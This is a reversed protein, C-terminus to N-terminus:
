KLNDCVLAATHDFADDEMPCIKTVITRGTSASVSAAYPPYVMKSYAASGVTSSRRRRKQEKEEEKGKSEEGGEVEREGEEM